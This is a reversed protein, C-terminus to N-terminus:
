GSLRPERLNLWGARQLIDEAITTPERGETEVLMDEVPHADMEAALEVARNLHWDMGVGQGRHRVRQQLTAPVARLRVLLIDAGPIADRFGGLEFRSEIVRAVILRRAGAAQYNKWLAALNM